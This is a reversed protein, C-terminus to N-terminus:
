GTQTSVVMVAARSPESEQPTSIHRLIIRSASLVISMVFKVRDRPQAQSLHCLADRRVSNEKKKRDERTKKLGGVADMYVNFRDKAVIYSLGDSFSVDDFDNKMAIHDQKFNGDGLITRTYKWRSSM